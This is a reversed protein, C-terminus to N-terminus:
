STFLRNTFVDISFMTVSRKHGGTNRFLERSLTRLFLFVRKSCRNLEQVSSKCLTRSGLQKTVEYYGFVRMWVSLFKAATLSQETFNDKFFAIGGLVALTVLDMVFSFSSRNHTTSQKLYRRTLSFSFLFIVWSGDLLFDDLGSGLGSRSALPLARSICMCRYISPCTIAKWDFTERSEISRNRKGSANIKHLVLDDIQDFISYQLVFHPLSCTLSRALSCSLKFSVRRVMVTWSVIGFVYWHRRSSFVYWFRESVM